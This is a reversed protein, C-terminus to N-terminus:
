EGKPIEIELFGAEADFDRFCRLNNTELFDGM